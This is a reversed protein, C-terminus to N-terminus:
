KIEKYYLSKLKDESGDENVEVSCVEGSKYSKNGKLMARLTKCARRFNTERLKIFSISKGRIFGILYRKTM